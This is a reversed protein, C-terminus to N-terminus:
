AHPEQASQGRQQLARQAQELDSFPTRVGAMDQTTEHGKGALLLVDRVGAQAILQQIALARDVEIQLAPYGPPVGHLIDDLIVQPAESRPNDSTLMIADALQAAVGGMLARKGQDRDGGCGFLVQLKGGRAKAMARLAQLAQQLADPTHAYDVIVMPQSASATAAATAATVPTASVPQMRGPVPPLLEVCRVAQQLDIGQALLVGLVGLLNEVNHRGIMRSQVPLMRRQGTADICQLQLAMGSATHRLDSAHLQMWCATGVADQAKGAHGSRAALEDHLQYGIIRLASAAEGALEAALACGMADNLNLVAAQLGPMGFLRRKAQAYQQMDAHYDLHDRSLNTFLAVAIRTGNLRGQDLGISSAEVAVSNIGQSRFDHLSRQWLVAEPTTNPNPQLASIQPVADGEAGAALAPVHGIGLTGVLGCRRGALALAQAIWVACSTKGNTGTVAIVDPARDVEIGAQTARQEYLGAAVPGALQRLDKVGINPLGQVAAPTQSWDFSHAEWLVAAAGARVAESLHRRGDDREGPYALFLAGPTLQRSDSHVSHAIVGQERLNALLHAARQAHKVHENRQMPLSTDAQM